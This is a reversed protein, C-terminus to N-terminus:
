ADRRALVDSILVGSTSPSEIAAGVV